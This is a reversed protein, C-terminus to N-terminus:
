VPSSSELKKKNNEHRKDGSKVVYLTKSISIMRQCLVHVLVQVKIVFVASRLVKTCNTTSLLKGIALLTKHVTLVVLTDTQRRKLRRTYYCVVIIKRLAIINHLM